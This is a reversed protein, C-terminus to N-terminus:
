LILLIIFIAISYYLKHWAEAELKNKEEEILSYMKDLQVGSSIIWQWNDYKKVYTVKDTAKHDGQAKWKYFIFADNKNKVSNLINNFVEREEKLKINKYNKGEYDQRYRNSLIVGNKNMVFVYSNKFYSMNKIRDLVDEQLQKKIRSKYDATVIILNLPEIVKIYGKKDEIKKSIPSFFKWEYFSQKKKKIFKLMKEFSSDGKKRESKLITYNDEYKKNIGHFITKGSFDFLSYYGYGDNFTIGRFSNKIIDIIQKNSKEDKYKNYLNIAINYGENARHKLNKNIVKEQIKY